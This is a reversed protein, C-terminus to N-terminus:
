KKKYKKKYTGNGEDFTLTLIDGSISFKAVTIDPNNETGHDLRVKSDFQYTWSGSSHTGEICEDGATSAFHYEYDFVNGNKFRLLDMRACEDAPEEGNDDAYAIYSWTGLIDGDGGSDDKKCSTFMCGLAMAFLLIPKKMKNGNPSAKFRVL